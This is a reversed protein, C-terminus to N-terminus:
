NIVTATAEVLRLNNHMGIIELLYAENQPQLRLEVDLVGDKVRGFDDFLNRLNERAVFLEYKTEVKDPGDRTLASVYDVEGGEPTIMGILFRGSEVAGKYTAAIEEAFPYVARFVPDDVCTPVTDRIILRTM